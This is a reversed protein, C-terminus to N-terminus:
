VRPQELKFKYFLVDAPKPGSAAVLSAALEISFKVVFTEYHDDICQGRPISPRRDIIRVGYIGDRM